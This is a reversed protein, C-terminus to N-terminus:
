LKIMNIKIIMTYGRWIQLNSAIMVIANGDIGLGSLGDFIM